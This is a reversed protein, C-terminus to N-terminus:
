SRMIFSDDLLYDLYGLSRLLITIDKAVVHERIELLNRIFERIQFLIMKSIPVRKQHIKSQSNCPQANVTVREEKVYKSWVSKM